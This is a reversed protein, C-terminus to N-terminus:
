GQMGGESAKQGKIEGKGGLGTTNQTVQVKWPDWFETGSKFALDHVRTALYALTDILRGAVTM